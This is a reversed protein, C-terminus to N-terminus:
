PVLCFALTIFSRERQLGVVMGRSCLCCGKAPGPHFYLRDVLQQGRSDVLRRCYGDTRRECATRVYIM